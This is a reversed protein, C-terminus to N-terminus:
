DTDDGEHVEIPGNGPKNPAWDWFEAGLPSHRMELEDAYIDGEVDGDDTADCGAIALACFM